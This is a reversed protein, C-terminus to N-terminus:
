EKFDEFVTQGGGPLNGGGEGTQAEMMYKKITPYSFFMNIYCLLSFYVVPILFLFIKMVFSLVVTGVGVVLLLLITLFSKPMKILGLLLSNKYAAKISLDFTVLVTYIFLHMTLYLFVVLLLLGQLIYTMVSASAVSTYFYINVILVLLAFCDLVFVLLSRWFNKKMHELFDSWVWAHDGRTLNRMVYALGASAPGTGIFAATFLSLLIVLLSFSQELVARQEEPTTGLAENFFLATNSTIRQFFPAAGMSVIFYVIVFAPISFLIYVLNLTVFKGFKRFLIDFFLAVGKKPPEDKRVGPGPKDYNFFGFFGAM